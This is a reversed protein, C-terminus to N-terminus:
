YVFTPSALSLLDFLAQVPLTDNLLNAAQRTEIGLPIHSRIM